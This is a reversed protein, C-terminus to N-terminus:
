CIWQTLGNEKTIDLIFKSPSFTALSHGDRLMLNPNSLEFLRYRNEARQRYAVEPIMAPVM